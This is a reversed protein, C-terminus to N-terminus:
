IEKPWRQSRRSVIWVGLLFPPAIFFTICGTEVQTQSQVEREKALTTPIAQATATSRAAAATAAVAQESGASVPYYRYLGGFVSVAYLTKSTAYDPPLFIAQIQGGLTGASNTGAWTKGLDASLFIDASSLSYAVVGDAMFNPSAAMVAMQVNSPAHALNQWLEGANHTIFVGDSSSMALITKDTAFNASFMVRKFNRVNDMGTNRPTWTDGGNTSYLIGSSNTAAMVLHDSVYNPSIRIEIANESLLAKWTSGRDTSRYLGTASAVAFMTGDDAFAPSLDLSRLDQLPRIGRSPFGSMQIEAWSQGGDTSRFLAGSAEKMTVKSKNLSAYITRDQAFNPSFVIEYVDIQKNEPIGESSKTWTDGADTSRWIGHNNDKNSSGFLVLHDAAFNPSFAMVSPKRDLLKSWTLEGGDQAQARPLPTSYIAIFLGTALLAMAAWRSASPCRSNHIRNSPRRM